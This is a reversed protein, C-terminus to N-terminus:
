EREKDIERLLAEVRGGAEPSTDYFFRLEPAVRLGLGRAAHHRLKGAAARLGTLATKQAKPDDNAPAGPTTLDPELRFFVTALQLDDPMEIRSILVRQVRPDRIERRLTVTLEERLRETVRAARKFEAM